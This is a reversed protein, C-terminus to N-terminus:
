GGGNEKREGTEPLVIEVEQWLWGKETWNTVTHPKEFYFRSTGLSTKEYGREIRVAIWGKKTKVRGGKRRGSFSREMQRVM